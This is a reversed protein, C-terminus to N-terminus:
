SWNTIKYMNNAIFYNAVCVLYCKRVLILIPSHYTHIVIAIQLDEYHAIACNNDFGKGSKSETVVINESRDIKM